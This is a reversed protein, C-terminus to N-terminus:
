QRTSLRQLLEGLVNPAPPFPCGGTDAAIGLCRGLGVARLLASSAGASSLDPQSRPGLKPTTQTKGPHNNGKERGPTLNVRM